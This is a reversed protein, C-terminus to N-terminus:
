RVSDIEKMAYTNAKVDLTAWRRAISQHDQIWEENWDKCTPLVVTFRKQDFFVSLKQQIKLAASQGRGSEDNNTAIFIRSPNLSVLYSIMKGSLSLGFLVLTNKIGAEWLALCDGISEVLVVEKSDRLIQANLHSPFIWFGKRGLLKWKSGAKADDLKRGAFGLIQGGDPSFVPICSRAYMKGSHCVGAKFLNMTAASIGRREWYVHQPFLLQLSSAKFVTPREIKVAAPAIQVDGVEHNHLKLFKAFSGGEGLVHDYYQGTKSNLSVAAPHDGQRYKAAFRFEGQSLTPKYGLEELVEKITKTEVM